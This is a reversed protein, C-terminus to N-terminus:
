LGFGHTKRPTTLSLINIEGFELLYAKNQLIIIPYHFKSAREYNTLFNVSKTYIM